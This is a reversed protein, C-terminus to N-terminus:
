AVGGPLRWLLGGRRLGALRSVDTGHARVWKVPASCAPDPSMNSPTCFTNLFAYRVNGSAILRRLKTVSTFVRADYTTLVLVPRADQVILSGIETSSEAAV